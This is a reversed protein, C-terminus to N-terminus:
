RKLFKIVEDYVLDPIQEPLWHGGPLAKGQVDSAREQWAELVNYRGEMAGNAGWLALLPCSVKINLDNEDHELDITAGARYDECMAHMAAPDKFNKLYANYIPEPIYKPVMGRFAWNELMFEANSLLLTEPMPAKQILFYWHWYVSAFEKTTETYLKHTPVIDIVVLKLVKDPYDLAMRHGTRAGRDHAVVLFSDFGLKEMVEVQDFAMARKSYGYHNIGDDPKSSNGYGRLDTLVVTYDEALKPAIKHWELHTQPYGHLLLLPPGQGKKLGYITAESTEIRFPEFDPFYEQDIELQSFNQSQAIGIALFMISLSLGICKM